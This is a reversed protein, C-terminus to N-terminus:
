CRTAGAVRPLDVLKVWRRDPPANFRGRIDGVVSSDLRSGVNLVEPLASPM